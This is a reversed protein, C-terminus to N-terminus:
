ITIGKWIFYSLLTSLVVDGGRAVARFEEAGSGLSYIVVLHSKEYIIKIQTNINSSPVAPDIVCCIAM